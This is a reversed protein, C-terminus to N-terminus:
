LSTHTYLDFKASSNISSMPEPTWIVQPIRPSSLQCLLEGAREVVTVRLKWSQSGSKIKDKQTQHSGTSDSQLVRHLWRPPLSSMFPHRMNLSFSLINGLIELPSCSDCRLSALIFIHLSRLSCSTIDLLSQTDLNLHLRLLPNFVNAWLQVLFFMFVALIKQHSMCTITETLPIM